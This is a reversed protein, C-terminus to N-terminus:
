NAFLHVTLNFSKLWHELLTDIQLIRYALYKLYERRHLKESEPETLNLFDINIQENFATQKCRQENLLDVYYDYDLSQM